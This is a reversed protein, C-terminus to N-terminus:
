SSQEALMPEHPCQQPHCPPSSLMTQKCMPAKSTSTSVNNPTSTCSAGSLTWRWRGGGADVLKGHCSGHSASSFVICMLAKILDVTVQRAKCGSAYASISLLELVGTFNLLRCSLLPKEWLRLKSICCQCRSDGNSLGAPWHTEELNPSQAPRKSFHVEGM